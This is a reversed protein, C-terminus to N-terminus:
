SSYPSWKTSASALSNLQQARKVFRVIRLAGLGYMRYGSARRPPEPPLGRREYYRLTQANVGARDAVERTRM